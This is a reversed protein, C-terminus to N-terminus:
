NIPIIDVRYDKIKGELLYKCLDERQFAASVRASEVEPFEGLYSSYWLMNSKQIDIVLQFM